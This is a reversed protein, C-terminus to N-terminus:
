ESFVVERKEYPVPYEWENARYSVSRDGRRTDMAAAEKFIPGLGNPFQIGQKM